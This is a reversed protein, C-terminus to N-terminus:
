DIIIIFFKSFFFFNLIINVKDKKRKQMLFYTLDLANNGKKTEMELLQHVRDDYNVGHCVNKSVYFKQKIRDSNIVFNAAPINGGFNGKMILKKNKIKKKKSNFNCTPCVVLDSFKKLRNEPKVINIGCYGGQFFAREITINENQQM